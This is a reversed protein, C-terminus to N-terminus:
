RCNKNVMIAESLTEKINKTRTVSDHTMLRVYSHLGRHLSGREAEVELSRPSVSFLLNIVDLTTMNFTLAKKGKHSVKGFIHQSQFIRIRDM